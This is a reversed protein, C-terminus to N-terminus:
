LTTFRFEFIYSTVDNTCAHNTLHMHVSCEDLNKNFIQSIAAEQTRM